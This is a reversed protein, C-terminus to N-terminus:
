DLRRRSLLLLPPAPLPCPYSNRRTSDATRLSRPPGTVASLASGATNHLPCPCCSLAGVGPATPTPCRWCPPWPRPRPRPPPATWTRRNAAADAPLLLPFCVICPVPSGLPVSTSNNTQAHTPRRKCAVQPWRWWGGAARWRSSPAEVWGLAAELPQRLAPVLEPAVLM